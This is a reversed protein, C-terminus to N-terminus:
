LKGRKVEFQYANAVKPYNTTKPLLVGVTQLRALLVRRHWQKLAELVRIAQSPNVWAVSEVGAGQNLTSTMRKVYANLATESSDKVIGHQAMTIWIARIKDIEPLKATGSPPSLRGAKKSKVAKFGKAKFHNLVAELQKVNMKACSTLGNAVDALVQRYLEDDLGLQKKAIHIKAILARTMTKSVKVRYVGYFHYFDAHGHLLYRYLPCRGVWNLPQYRRLM